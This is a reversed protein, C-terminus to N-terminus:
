AGAMRRPPPPRREPEPSTEEESRGPRFFVFATATLGIAGALSIRRVVADHAFLALLLRPWGAPGTEATDLWPALVLVLVLMGALLCSLFFLVRAPGSGKSM